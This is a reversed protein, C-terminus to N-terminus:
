GVPQDASSDAKGGVGARLVEWTDTIRADPFEAVVRQRLMGLAGAFIALFAAGRWWTDFPENPLLYLVILLIVMAWALTAVPRGVLAPALLRRLWAAVPSAGLIFAFGVIILGYVVGAIALDRLLETTTDTVVGVLNRQQETDGLASEATRGGIRLGTLVVLSAIILAVGVQRIVERRRDGALYIALGYLVVILVFLVASLREVLRVLSQATELEDSEFLVIQGTDEPLRELVRGELGYEEGVQEVLPRLELTVMGESTSLAPGFDDKLVQVLKEHTTRNIDEWKAQAKETALLREVGNTAPQRLASSLLGAIRGASDPLRAGLEAELDVADYLEDVVYTAVANRVDDDELLDGSAEVWEDTDLLQKEVWINVATAVTLLTAVVILATVVWKPTSSGESEDEPTKNEDNEKSMISVM